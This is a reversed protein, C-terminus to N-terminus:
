HEHIHKQLCTRLLPLVIPLKISQFDLVSNQSMAIHVLVCFHALAPFLSGENASAVQLCVASSVNSNANDEPREAAVSQHRVLPPVMRYVGVVREHNENGELMM